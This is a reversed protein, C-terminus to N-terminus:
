QQPGGQATVGYGGLGVAAAPVAYRRQIDVISPDFVVYNSTGPASADAGRPGHRYGIRLGPVGRGALDRAVAAQSGLVKEHSLDSMFSGVSRDMFEGSAKARAMAARDNGFRAGLVAEQVSPAHDSLSRDWDLLRDPEAHIGVEYMSGGTPRYERALAEEDTFYLGHGFMQRGDGTGIADLSFEDFKHPSGHYARIPNAVRPAVVREVFVEAAKSAPRTAVQVAKGAVPLPVAALLLDSLGSVPKGHAIKRGAEDAAWPLGLPTFDLAGTGTGGLGTSGVLRGVFRQADRGGGLLEQLRSAAKDRFTPQYARLVAPSSGQPM